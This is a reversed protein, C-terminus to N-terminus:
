APWSARMRLAIADRTGDDIVEDGVNYAGVRAGRREAPLKESRPVISFHLHHEMGESFEMVYSWQAEAAESQAVAAARLLPGVDAVEADTLDALSEVHRRPVLLLWGPLGSRHAVLRWNSTLVVEERRPATGQEVSQNGQCL